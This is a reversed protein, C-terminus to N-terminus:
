RRRAGARSIDGFRFRGRTRHLQRLRSAADVRGMGPRRTAGVVCRRHSRFVRVGPITPVVVDFADAAEGGHAVPDVLPGIVDLFEVISGPWGHTLLLPLASAEGSRVHIFHVDHGPAISRSPTSAPRRRVGIPMTIRWSKSRSGHGPPRGPDPAKRGRRNLALRRGAVVLSATGWGATSHQGGLEVADTHSDFLSHANVDSGAGM